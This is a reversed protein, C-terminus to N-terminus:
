APEASIDDLTDLALDITAESDLRPTTYEGIRCRWSSRSARLFNTCMESLPPSRVASRM